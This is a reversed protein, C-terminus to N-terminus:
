KKLGSIYRALNYDTGSHESFLPNGDKDAPCPLWNRSPKGDKLMDRQFLYETCYNHHNSPLNNEPFKDTAALLEWTRTQNGDYFYHYVASYLANEHERETYAKLRKLASDKIAGHVRGDAYIALVDLHAEFDSRIAVADDGDALGSIEEEPVAPRADASGKELYAEIDYILSILRPSMVCRSVKETDNIADCMVYSHAKLFATYRKIWGLDKTELAAVMRMLAMDKSFGAKSGKDTKTEYDFCSHAPDRHNRGTSDEFISLDVNNEPCGIKYLSTFGIGDCRGHVYKNVQYALNSKQCYLAGKTAIQVPLDVSTPKETHERKEFWGCSLFLMPLLLFLKM